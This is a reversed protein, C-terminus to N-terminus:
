GQRRGSQGRHSRCRRNTGAGGIWFVIWHEHGYRGRGARRRGQHRLDRGHNERFYEDNAGLSNSFRTVPISCCKQQSAAAGSRIRVKATELAIALAPQLEPNAPRRSFLPPIARTQAAMNADRCHLGEGFRSRHRRHNPTRHYNLERCPRSRNEAIADPGITITEAFPGSADKVPAFNPRQTLPSLSWPWVM